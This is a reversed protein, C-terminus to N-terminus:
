FLLLEGNILKTTLSPLDSLEEQVIDQVGSKDTCTSEISVEKPENIPAGIQSLLRVETYDADLDEHIRSAINGALINYIKGVHSVPNKGCPAEMTMPRYPNIVGNTRNGRGVMGDDGMEASSGTETIYVSNDEPQDATNVDVNVNRDTRDSAFESAYEQVQNKVEMYEDQNDLHRSIMAAAVTLHIGEANSYGMIKIDRGIAPHLEHLTQELNLVISETESLPAYGVGLSTDNARPVEGNKFLTMLDSSTEGLKSEINIMDEELPSILDLLYDRTAEKAIKHLPINEGDHEATARGGLVFTIPNEFSGGGFQPNTRGAVLQLKDTNHHLVQDFRELYAQSLSQSIQEAIGDCLSDPHGMGKREVLETRAPNLPNRNIKELSISQRTM